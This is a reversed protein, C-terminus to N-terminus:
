KIAGSHQKIKIVLAQLCADAYHQKNIIKHWKITRSHQKIKIVLAQLCLLLMLM